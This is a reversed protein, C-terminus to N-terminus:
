NSMRLPASRKRCQRGTSTSEAAASSVASAASSPAATVQSSVAASSSSASVSAAKAGFATTKAKSATKTTSTATRAKTTESSSSSKAATSKAAAASSSSSKASTTTAVAAVASSAASSGSGSAGQGIASIPSKGPFFSAPMTPIAISSSIDFGTSLEGAMTTYSGASATMTQTTTYATHSSGTNLCAGSGYANQCGYLVTSGSESGVSFDTISIDTCPVKSPCNVKVPGRQVGNSASGSWNSFSINSYTIGDGDVASMSSWATDFDLTYANSHGQFNNLAINYVDGDGGNSKIMYMQNAHHTYINRYEIDHVAIEM